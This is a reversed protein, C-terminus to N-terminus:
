EDAPRGVSFRVDVSGHQGETLAIPKFEGQDRFWCQVAEYEVPKGIPVWTRSEVLAKAERLELGRRDRVAKILAIKDVMGDPLIGFDRTLYEKDTRRIWVRLPASVDVHFPEGGDQIVDISVGGTHATLVVHVRNQRLVMEIRQMDVLDQDKDM